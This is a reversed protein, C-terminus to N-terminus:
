ELLGAISFPYAGSADPLGLVRIQEVLSRPTQPRPTIRGDIQWAGNAELSVTGKVGLPGELDHLEGTIPLPQPTAGFKVEYSGYSNGQADRLNRLRADGGLRRLTNGQVEFGLADGSMEASWGPPLMALLSRDVPVVGSLSHVQVDGNSRATVHGMARGGRHGLVVDADVRARLLSLADLQWAVSDLVLPTDPTSGAVRLQACHGNWLSGTLAQCQVGAPLLPAIWRAPLRVILVLAFGLIGLVTWRLLSPSV